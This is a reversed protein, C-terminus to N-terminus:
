GSGLQKSVNFSVPVGTYTGATACGSCVSQLASWAAEAAQHLLMTSSLICLFLLHMDAQTNPLCDASVAHGVDAAWGSGTLPKSLMGAVTDHSTTVSAMYVLTRVAHHNATSSALNAAQRMAM